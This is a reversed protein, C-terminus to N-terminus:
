HKKRLAEALESISTGNSNSSAIPDPTLLTGTVRFSASQKTKQAVAVLSDTFTKFQDDSLDAIFDIKKTFEEEPMVDKLAERRTNVLSARAAATEADKKFKRLEELETHLAAVDPAVVEEQQEPQATAEVADLRETLKAVLQKLEEVPDMSKSGNQTLNAVQRELEEIRTNAEESAMALLPTRGGYAPNAVITTAAVVCDKFWKIGADDIYEGGHYLEWSFHVGETSASAKELHAALDPFEDKYLVARGIIQADRHEMTTIHGVPLSFAHDGLKNKRFDAKVPMDIASRVLNEAETVPVGQKNKNPEFDTFVFELNTILPNTESATAHLVGDLLQKTM